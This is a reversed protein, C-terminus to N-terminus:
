HKLDIQISQGDRKIRLTKGNFRSGFATKEVLDQGDISQIVDGLKIGSREALSNAAASNVKWGSGDFDADIGMINLLDRVPVKSTQDFGRPLIPRRERLADVYSGGVPQPKRSRPLVAAPRDDKATITNSIDPPRTDPRTAVPEDPRDLPVPATNVDQSVAVAPVNAEGGPYYTNVVFYGGILAALSLPVAVRIPASFWSASRAAPRGNAVRARVRFDFDKPADVRSLTGILKSIKQDDASIINHDDTKM